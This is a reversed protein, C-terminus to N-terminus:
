YLAHLTKECKDKAGSPTRVELTMLDQTWREALQAVGKGLNDTM